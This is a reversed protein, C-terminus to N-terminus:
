NGILRSFCGILEYLPQHTFAGVIPWTPPGTYSAALPSGRKAPGHSQGSSYWQNETDNRGVERIMNDDTQYWLRYETVGNFNWNVTAIKTTQLMTTNRKDTSTHFASGTSMPPIPIHSVTSSSSSSLSSSSLSPNTAVSSPAQDSLSASDVSHHRTGGVSGGIAAAAITAIGLALFIWFNGKRSGRDNSTFPVYNDDEINNSSEPSADFIEPQPSATTSQKYSDFLSFDPQRSELTSYIQPPDPRQGIELTSHWQERNVPHEVEPTGYLNHNSTQMELNDRSLMFIDSFYEYQYSCLVLSFYLVPHHSHWCCGPSPGYGQM